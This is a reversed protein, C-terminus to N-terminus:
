GGPWGDLGRLSSLHEEKEAAARMDPKSEIARRLEELAREHEGM